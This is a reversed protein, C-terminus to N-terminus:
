RPNVEDYQVDNGDAHWDRVWCEECCYPGRDAFVWGALPSITTSHDCWSCVTAEGTDWHMPGTTEHAEVSYPEGDPFHHNLFAAMGVAEHRTEYGRRLGREHEGIVYYAWEPEREPPPTEPWDRENHPIINGDEDFSEPEYPGAM